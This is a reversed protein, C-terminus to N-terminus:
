PESAIKWDNGVQQLLLKGTRTDYLGELSVTFLVSGDPQAARDLIRVSQVGGLADMLRASVESESKSSLDTEISKQLQGTAGALAAKVDGNNAAWLSSQLAADPSAYGAFAWSSRPWYDATPTANVANTNHSSRDPPAHVQRNETLASQLDATQQRLATVEGRLRLLERSDDAPLPKSVSARSVLNSLQANEAAIGHLIEMQQELATHEAEAKVRAERQAALGIALVAVTAPLVFRAIANTPNM